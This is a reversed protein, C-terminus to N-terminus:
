IRLMLHHHVSNSHRITGPQEHLNPPSPSKSENDSDLANGEPSIFIFKNCMRTKNNIFSKKKHMLGLEMNALSNDIPEVPADMQQEIMLNKNRNEITQSIPFLSCLFDHEDLDDDIRQQNVPEMGNLISKFLGM